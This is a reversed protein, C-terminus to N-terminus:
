PSAPRRQWVELGQVDVPVHTQTFRAFAEPSLQRRGRDGLVVNQCQDLIPLPTQNAAFAATANHFRHGGSVSDLLQQAYSDVVGPPLRNAALSWGPEFTFVCDSTTKLPSRALQLHQDNGASRQISQVLSIVLAVMVLATVMRARPVWALFLGAVVAESAILHANYQAWYSPSTLFAALTLVWAAIVVRSIVTLERRILVVIVMLTALIPSALHRLAFLQELRPLRETIGDPPRELHFLGVQAVFNQPALLAFPLVVMAVTIAAAAVFHLLERKTAFSSL